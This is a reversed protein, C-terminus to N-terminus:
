DCLADHDTGPRPTSPSSGSNWVELTPEGPSILERSDATLAPAPRTRRRVDQYNTPLLHSQSIHFELRKAGRDGPDARNPHQRLHVERTSHSREPLGPPLEVGLMSRGDVVVCSTPEGTGAPCDAALGLRRGLAVGFEPVVLSVSNWLGCGTSVWSSQFLWVRHCVPETWCPLQTSTEYASISRWMRDGLETM